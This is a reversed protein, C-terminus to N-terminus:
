DQRGQAKFVIARSDGTIFGNDSHFSLWLVGSCEPPESFFDLDRPGDYVFSFFYQQLKTRVDLCTVVSSRLSCHFLLVDGKGM